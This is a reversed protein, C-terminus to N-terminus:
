LAERSWLFGTILNKFDHFSIAGLSPTIISLLNTFWDRMDQSLCSACAGVTLVWALHVRSGRWHIITNRERLFLRLKSGYLQRPISDIGFKGRLETLYIIGALRVCEKIRMDVGDYVSGRSSSLLVHLIPSIHFGPFIVDKELNRKRLEAQMIKNLNQLSQFMEFGAENREPSEDDWV